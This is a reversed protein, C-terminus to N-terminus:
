HFRLVRYQHSVESVLEGPAGDVDYVFCAEPAKGEIILKGVLADVVDDNELGRSNKPSSRGKPRMRDKPHGKEDLLRLVDHLFM